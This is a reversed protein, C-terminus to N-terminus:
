GPNVKEFDIISVDSRFTFDTYYQKEPTKSTSKLCTFEAQTSM